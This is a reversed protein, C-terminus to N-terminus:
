SRLVAICSPNTESHTERIKKKREGRGVRLELGEAERAAVAGTERTLASTVQVLNLAGAM